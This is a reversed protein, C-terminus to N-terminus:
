HILHRLAEVVEFAGDLCALIGFFALSPMRAWNLSKGRQFEKIIANQTLPETKSQCPVSSTMTNTSWTKMKYKPM